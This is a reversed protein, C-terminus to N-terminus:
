RVYNLTDTSKVKGTTNVKVLQEKQTDNFTFTENTINFSVKNSDKQIPYKKVKLDKEKPTVMFKNLRKEIDALIRKTFITEDKTYLGKIEQISDKLLISLFNTMDETTMTSTSEFIYSDDLDEYFKSQKDRIFKINNDYKSYLKDYTFGSLEAGIYQDKDVKGDHGTEVLFNVKDLTLILDNRSKEIDVISKNSSFTDIM